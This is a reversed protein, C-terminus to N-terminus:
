GAVSVANRGGHKAAYLAEDAAQMLSRADAGTRFIAVGLSATIRRTGPIV